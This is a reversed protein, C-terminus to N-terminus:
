SDSATRHIVDSAVGVQVGATFRSIVRVNQSGDLDAMDLLKVTNHDSLLGCGFFLNSKQGAFARNGSMGTCRQLPIGDFDTTITGTITKEQSQIHWLSLVFCLILALNKM